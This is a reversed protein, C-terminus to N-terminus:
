RQPRRRPPRTTASRSSSSRAPRSELAEVLRDAPRLQQQDRVDRTRGARVNGRGHGPSGTPTTLTWNAGITVSAPPKGHHARERRSLAQARALRRGVGARRRAPRWRACRSPSSWHPTSRAGRTRLDEPESGTVDRATTAVPLDGPMRGLSIGPDPSFGNADTRHSPRELQAADIPEDRISAPRAAGPQDQDALRSHALAPQALPRDLPRAPEADDHRAAHARLRLQAVGPQEIDQRRQERVSQVPQSRRARLRQPDRQPELSRRHDVRERDGDRAQVQERRPRSEAAAPRRRRRESPRHRWGPRTATRRGAARRRDRRGATRPAAPPRPRTRASPSRPATSRRPQRLGLRDVSRSANM